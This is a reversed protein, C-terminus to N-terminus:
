PTAKGIHRPFAQSAGEAGAEDAGVQTLDFATGDDTSMAIDEGWSGPVKITVTVTGSSNSADMLESLIAHANIASALNEGCDDDSAGDQFDSGETLTINKGGYTFRVYNGEANAQTCAITGTPKTGTDDHVAGWVNATITGSGIAGMLNSLQVWGTGQDWKEDKLYKEAMAEATRNCKIHLTIWSTAM